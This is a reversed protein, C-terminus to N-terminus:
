ELVNKKKYRLMGLSLITILISILTSIVAITSDVSWVLTMLLSILNLASLILGLRLITSFFITPVADLLDMKTNKRFSSM